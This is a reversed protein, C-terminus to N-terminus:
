QSPQRSIEALREALQEANLGRVSAAHRLSQDGGCCFDLRHDRFLRTAGPIQSALQGLTQEVLPTTM